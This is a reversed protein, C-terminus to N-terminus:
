AVLKLGAPICPRGPNTVGKDVISRLRRVFARMKAGRSSDGTDRFASFTEQLRIVALHRLADTAAELLEEVVEVDVAPHANQVAKVIPEYESKMKAERVAKIHAELEKEDHVAVAVVCAGASHYDFSCDHSQWQKQVIAGSRAKLRKFGSDEECAEPPSYGPTGAKGCVALRDAVLDFDAIVAELGGTPPSRVLVNAPKLDRHILGNDHLAAVGELADCLLHVVDRLPLGDFSGDGDRGNAAAAGGETRSCPVM